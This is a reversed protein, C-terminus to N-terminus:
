SFQHLLSGLKVVVVELANDPKLRSRKINLDAEQLAELGQKFKKPSLRVRSKGWFWVLGGMIQVPQIGSNLLNSLIGLADAMQRRGMANTMDFVNQSIAKSFPLVECAKACKGLFATTPEAEESDLILVVYKEKKKLFDLILEQNQASLKHVQRIVILRQTAVAPLTVLAKKLTEAELKLGYLTEFDFHLANPQPFFKKKFEAIKKDKSFSDDGLLLYNM